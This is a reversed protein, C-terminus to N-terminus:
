LKDTAPAKGTDAEFEFRYDESLPQDSLVRFACRQDGDQFKAERHVRVGLLRNLASVTVSCLQPRQTALNLYPCNREVLLYGREDTEVHTFPDQEFYFGTLAKIREELSLDRLKEQWHAVQKDTLKALMQRLADPGLTEVLTDLLELSLVDYFKPFLHDGAPTLTFLATPRGRSLSKGPEKGPEQGSVKKVTRHIWGDNELSALQQRVAERTIDLYNAMELLTAQGHMKLYRLLASRTEPLQELTATTQQM